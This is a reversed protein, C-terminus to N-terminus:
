YPRVNKISSKFEPFNEICTTEENNTTNWEGSSKNILNTWLLLWISLLVSPVCVILWKNGIDHIFRILSHDLMYVLELGSTYIAVATSKRENPIYHSIIKYACPFLISAFIDMFVTLGFIYWRGLNICVLILLNGVVLILATLQLLKVPSWLDAMMGSPIAVILPVWIRVQFM